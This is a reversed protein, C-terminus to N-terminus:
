LELFVRDLVEVVLAVLKVLGELTTTMIVVAVAAQLPSLLSFQILVM